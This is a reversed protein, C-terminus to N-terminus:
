KNAALFVSGSGNKIKIQQNKIGNSLGIYGHENKISEGTNIYIGAGGESYINGQNNNLSKAVIRINSKNTSKDNLNIHGNKNNVVGRSYLEVSRGEIYSHRNDINGGARMHLLGTSIIGSDSSNVIDGEAYIRIKNAYMGGIDVVDISVPTVPPSLYAPRTATVKQGASALNIEVDGMVAFVDDAHLKGALTLSKSFLDLYVRKGEISRQHKTVNAGDGSNSISINGETVVFSKLKNDSDFTPVGTTLAIHSMNSFSCGSCNIGSPNAIIVHADQGVLKVQGNLYSAHPSVVENLIVQAAANKLHPNGNVEGSLVNNLIIVDNDSHANFHSYKNHSLGYEDPTQINVTTKEGCNLSHCVGKSLPSLSEVKIDAQQEVPARVDAIINTTSHAISVSSLSLFVSVSIISVIKGTHSCRINM